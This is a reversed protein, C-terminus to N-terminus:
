THHVYKKSSFKLNTAVSEKGREQTVFVIKHNFNFVEQKVLPLDLNLEVNKDILSFSLEAGTSSHMSGSVQLGSSVAYGDVSLTGTM